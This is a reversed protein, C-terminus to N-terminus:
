APLVGILQRAACFPAPQLAKTFIDGKQELTPVHEVTVFLSPDVICEHVTGIACRQTRSIHRLKKSYGKTVATIAQLNDVRCSVTLYRGLMLKFLEQAPLAERRLGSSLAVTEAECTSSATATQKCTSWAIPWTRGSKPSCLELWCGSTSKSTSADGAWDADTFLVLLLDELDEPSLSGFLALDANQELYGMLRVLAADETETWKAVATCLRQTATSIDPRGVRGLFLCTATYSSCSKHFVGPKDSCQSWDHDSIFPSSVNRLNRGFEDKFRSVANRTYDSMSISLKRVAKPKSDDVDTFAYVAGLYRGIQAAPDKFDVEKEISRWHFATLKSTAILMLDDVYCVLVSSDPHM